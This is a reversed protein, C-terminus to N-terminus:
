GKGFYDSPIIGIPGGVNEIKNINISRSFCPAVGSFLRANEGADGDFSSDVNKECVVAKETGTPWADSIKTGKKAAQSINSARIEVGIKEIEM